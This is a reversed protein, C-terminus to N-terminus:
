CPYESAPATNSLALPSDRDTTERIMMSAGSPTAIAVPWVIQAGLAALHPKAIHAVMAQDDFGDRYPACWSPRGIVTMTLTASSM